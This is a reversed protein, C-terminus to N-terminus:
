KKRVFKERYIEVAKLFDDYNTAFTQSGDEGTLVYYLYKTQKPHAAAEMAKMGPNGLPGPPLGYHSYTNYPHGNSLDSKKLVKTGEPLGYFVTSDLQLRMRIKLRNYIVSSVLPYEKSLRVERELISAITVVDNLTLNKSKAYALDLDATREDFTDLMMEIAQRETTGKKIRYTAPFLFGELSDGYADKLYPHDAEFEPAGHLALGVFTDEDMQARAAFRAAVQEATFGEPIPVDYYVVDPGKSLKSMAAEYGMGTTLDYTGAKLSGDIGAERAKLRFMLANDVIGANALSDAIQSSSEGKEIVLEVHAGAAVEHQPKYLMSWATYAAAGAVALLTCVAVVAVAPRRRPRRDRRHPRPTELVSM